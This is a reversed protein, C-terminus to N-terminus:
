AAPVHAVTINLACFVHVSEIINIPALLYIKINAAANFRKM